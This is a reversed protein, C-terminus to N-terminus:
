RRRVAHAVASNITAFSYGNNAEIRSWSQTLKAFASAARLKAARFLTCVVRMDDDAL